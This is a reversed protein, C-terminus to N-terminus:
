GRVTFTTHALVEYQDDPLLYVSYRGPKLPWRGSTGDDFTGSGAVMSDTYFWGLYPAAAPSAGRRYIAVWDFRNGPMDSWTVTIPDGPAYSRRGTTVTPTGGAAQVWFPSRSLRTEDGGVLVAHYAGPALTSTDFTAVGDTAGPETPREAVASGPADGARVLVVKAESGDPVHYTVVLPDGVEVLRHDVAVMVPMVQPWVDFTSVVARHDSPWPTVSIDAGGREGVVASQVAKARGSSYIFDIRDQPADKRPNWSDPSRPRGSPWTLGPDTVPNPHVSRYSDTFGARHMLVGTPWSLPYRIQPRLGVTKMTWDYQSPANFDGLLFTPIGSDALKELPALRPQLDAVRVSVEAARADQRSEGDLIRRPGYPGSPLHVNSIAAVHGPTVEVFLYSGDAGPPDILPRDSVVSLRTSFDPWGLAHAIRPVNGQPENIGVVDAHSKRIAAIVSHFDIVTGGYEVNFTMVKLPTAPVTASSSTAAPTPSADTGTQAPDDQTSSTCAVLILTIM